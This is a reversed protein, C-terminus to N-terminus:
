GNDRAALREEAWAELESGLWASARKGIKVPKPFAGEAALEYITSRTLGTLKEVEPVRYFQYRTEISEPNIAQTAM